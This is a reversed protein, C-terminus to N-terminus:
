YVELLYMCICSHKCVLRDFDRELMQAYCHLYYKRLRRATSQREKIVEVTVQGAVADSSDMSHQLVDASPFASLLALTLTPLLLLTWSWFCSVYDENALCPLVAYLPIEGKIRSVAELYKGHLEKLAETEVHEKETQLGCCLMSDTTSKSVTPLCGNRM